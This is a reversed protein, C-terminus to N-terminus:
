RKILLFYIQSCWNLCKREFNLIEHSKLNGQLQEGHVCPISNQLCLYNEINYIRRFLAKVRTKRQVRLSSNQSFRGFKKQEFHLLIITKNLEDFCKIQYFRKEPRTHLLKVSDPWIKEASVNFFNVFKQKKDSFIGLNKEPYTHRHESFVLWTKKSLAWFCKNVDVFGLFIEHFVKDPCLYFVIRLNKRAGTLSREAWLGFFNVFNKKYVFNSFKGRSM